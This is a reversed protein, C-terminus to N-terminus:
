AEGWFLCVAGLSMPQYGVNTLGAQRMMDAFVPPAPFAAISRQLYAYESKGSLWAGMRPVVHHVHFRALSAMLGRRPESLELVAIRGGPRVVRRMERLAQLRDPVNRIGFSICAAAFRDDRFPMHQADGVLLSLRAHLRAREAKQQGVALMAASPDLGVVRLRPHRRCLSLAVDATGTAVDLVDNDHQVRLAHVLRRRWLRDMGFSMLKNLLDYRRAIGDFMAGSGDAPM